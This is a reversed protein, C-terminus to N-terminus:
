FQATAALMLGRKTETLPYAATRCAPLRRYLLNFVQAVFRPQTSPRRVPSPQAEDAYRLCDLYRLVGTRSYRLNKVQLTETVQPTESVNATTAETAVQSGATATQSDQFDRISKQASRVPPGPVVAGQRCFLNALRDSRREVKGIGL